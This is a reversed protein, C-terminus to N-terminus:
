LQSRVPLTLFELFRRWLSRARWSQPDIPRAQTLDDEFVKELREAIERDYAILSIEDNLALSRNDMNASGVMAWAGDITMTKAHLLGAQYEYIEVGADMLRGFGASSAAVVLEHDIAGPLLLVVRVGRARASLLAERITEDPVFYPNTLYISRRASSISFLYMTYMTLSGRGPSSRVIQARVEGRREQRPFYGPGGLARGTTELWNEVFAAQLDTVAHGEIRVDTQRWHGERRGDGMWKSSAGSSGTFGIRGDVVLIRRHNRNNVEGLSPVDVPHFTAVECGAETLSDRLEAPMGLSGIGDLLVHGRVGARCREGMAKVLARAPPGTEYFYQAYTFTAQASRIAELQAPFIQEGNLLLDVRNGWRVPSATYAEFTPAFSPDGIAVEPFVLPLPGRACGILAASLAGTIVLLHLWVELPSRRGPSPRGASSM